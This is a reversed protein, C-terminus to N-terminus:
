QQLAHAIGEKLTGRTVIGTLDVGIGILTRAVTPGIGTLVVQAGLLSAAKAAKIAAETDVIADKGRGVAARTQRVIECAFGAEALAIAEEGGRGFVFPDGCKLRVVKLGRRANKILLRRM